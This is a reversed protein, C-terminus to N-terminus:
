SDTRGGMEWSEVQIPQPMPKVIPARVLVRNTIVTPERNIAEQYDAYYEESITQYHEVRQNVEALAKSYAAQEKLVKAEYRDAAGM